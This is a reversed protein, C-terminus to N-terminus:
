DVEPDEVPLGDIRYLTQEGLKRKRGLFTNGGGTPNLRPSQSLYPFSTGGVCVVRPKGDKLEVDCPFDLELCPGVMKEYWQVRTQSTIARYMRGEVRALRREWDVWSNPHQHASM